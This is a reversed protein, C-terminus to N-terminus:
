RSTTSARSSSRTIRTPRSARRRSCRSRRWTAPTRRRRRTRSRRARSIPSSRTRRARRSSRRDPQLGPVGERQGQHRVPDRRRPQGRVRDSRDLLRRRAPPGLADGRDGRRQDAGPLVRGEQRPVERPADHVAQLHERLRRSGRGAHLHLRDDVPEEMEESRDARRRGPGQERRLVDHRARRPERLRRRRLGARAAARRRWRAAVVVM